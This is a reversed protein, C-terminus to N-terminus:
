EPESMDPGPNFMGLTQVVEEAVARTLGIQPADNLLVPAGTKTNYVTWGKDDHKLSYHAPPTM